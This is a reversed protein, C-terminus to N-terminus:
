VLNVGGGKAAGGKFIVKILILLYFNIKILQLTRGEYPTFFFGTTGTEYRSFILTPLDSIIKKKFIKKM